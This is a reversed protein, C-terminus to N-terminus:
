IRKMKKVWPLTRVLLGNVSVLCELRGVGGRQVTGALRMGAKNRWAQEVEHEEPHIRCLCMGGQPIFSLIIDLFHWHLLFCHWSM